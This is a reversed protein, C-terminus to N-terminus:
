EDADFQLTAQLGPAGLEAGPFVAQARELVDRACEISPSLHTLWLRRVASDRASCRRSVRWWTDASRQASARATPPM